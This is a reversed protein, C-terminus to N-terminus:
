AASPTRTFTCIGATTTRWAPAREAVEVGIGHEQLRAAARLGAIGRAWWSSTLM